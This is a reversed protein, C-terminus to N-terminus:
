ARQRIWKNGETEMLNDRSSLRLVVYEQISKPGLVCNQYFYVNNMTQRNGTKLGSVYRAM